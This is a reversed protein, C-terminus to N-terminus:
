PAGINLGGSSSRAPFVGRAEQLGQALAGLAMVEAVVVLFSKGEAMQASAFGVAFGAAPKNHKSLTSNYNAVAELRELQSGSMGGNGPLNM